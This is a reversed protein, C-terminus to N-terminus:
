TWQVTFARIYPPDFKFRGNKMNPHKYFFFPFNPFYKIIIIIISNM